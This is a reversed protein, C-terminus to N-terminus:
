LYEMSKQIAGSLTSSWNGNLQMILQTQDEDPFFTEAKAHSILLLLIAQKASKAIASSEIDSCLPAFVRKYFVHNRNLELILHGPRHIVNYLINAPYDVEVVSFPNTKLEKEREKRAEEDVFEETSREIIQRTEHEIEEVTKEKGGPAIPQTKSAEEMTTEAFRFTSKKKSEGESDESDFDAQIQDRFSKVVQWIENRIKDRLSAVPEAGRKIFRVHFYEDLEPPFSIECGWWRDIDLFRAQGKRGVIFPIPGYLVERDARMVSIGENENIKREKAFSKGGAGKETRWEKPLLSFTIVVDATEGPNGPVPLTIRIPEGIISAKSDPKGGKKDWYTPGMVYLPDHLEVEQNDVWFKIGGQIFKRYTRGIFNPLSKIQSSATLGKEKEIPDFQLRDCNKILVITGTSGELLSFYKDGSEPIFEEPKDLVIGGNERLSDLDLSVCSFNQDVSNRSYIAISRGLSIAGMLLGVGFRGIKRGGKELRVSDGLVLSRSLIEPPMGCGDDIVAVEDIVEVAKSSKPFKKKTTSYCLHINEAGSEVSNDFFEGIASNIDFEASRLSEMVNQPKFLPHFGSRSILNEIGDITMEEQNM